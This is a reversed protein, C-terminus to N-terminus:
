LRNTMSLKHYQVNVLTQQKLEKVKKKKFKCKDYNSM